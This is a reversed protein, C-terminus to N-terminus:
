HFLPSNWAWDADAAIWPTSPIQNIQELWYAMDFDNTTELIDATLFEVDIQRSPSCLGPQSDQQHLSGEDNLERQLDQLTNASRTTGSSELTEKLRHYCRQLIDLGTRAISNHPEMLALRSVAQQLIQDVQLMVEPSKSPYLATIFSLLIAADITYFSLGFLKYHHTGSLDFLRQQSELIVIAAQSAASRSEARTAIHPRHLTMLFMNFLTLLEERQQALYSHHSDWSTDPHKPRLVPPANDLISVIQEHFTQILSPDKPHPRDLKLARMEHVKGALAYRILSASVSSPLKNYGDAAMITPVTKSPDKPINCDTPMVADCDDINIARPRGLIMAM